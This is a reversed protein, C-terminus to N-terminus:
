GPNKESALLESTEPSRPYESKLRESYTKVAADNGLNKEIRWGLWLSSANTQRTEVYRELFARALLYNKMRFELDAMQYLAEGYRPRLVLARRYNEEAGPLDGSGRACNGANTFAMEPTKYLPDGAAQLALKEGREFHKKQCLFTAYNNLIQPDKPTLSLAREFFSDAKKEEGLRDYLLGALAQAQANKPNQEIARDLKEKAESLKGKRYYDSALELNIDSAREPQPKSMPQSKNNACAILSCALVLLILARQIV